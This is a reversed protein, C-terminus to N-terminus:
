RAAATEESGPVATAPSVATATPSVTAPAAASVRTRNTEARFDFRSVYM